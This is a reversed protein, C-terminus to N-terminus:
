YPAVARYFRAPYNTANTDYFRVTGNTNALIAVDTWDVLNTSAQARYEFGPQGTLEYVRSGNTVMGTVSLLAPQSVGSQSLVTNTVAVISQINTFADLRFGLVHSSNATANPFRFVYHNTTVIREDITGINQDDWYM